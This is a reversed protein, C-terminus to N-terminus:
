GGALAMRRTIDRLSGLRQVTYPITELGAAFKLIYNYIGIISGAQLAKGTTSASALLSATLMFLVLLEVWGFNWAETDSLRVQLRRLEHYHAAIRPADNSAITNVQKELEDNRERNLQATIRGYRRSFYTVPVLVVVCILVVTRDYVLLLLLSGVLNYFAEIVYNLDYELFDVFQRALTSHASLRSVDEERVPRAFLQTVFTTYISTFTRTDVAHRLAGIALWALHVGTLVFLGRYSGALLGDVAVGLFYPRLLTGLMELGFLSYTALLRYRYAIVVSRFPGWQLM